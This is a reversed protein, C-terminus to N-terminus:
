TWSREPQAPAPVTALQDTGSVAKYFEKIIKESHLLYDELDNLMKLYDTYPFRQCGITVLYGGNASQEIQIPHSLPKIFNM